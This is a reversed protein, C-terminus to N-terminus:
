EWTWITGDPINRRDLDLRNKKYYMKVVDSLSAGSLKHSIEEKFLKTSEAKNYNADQQYITYSQWNDWFGFTELNDGYEAM